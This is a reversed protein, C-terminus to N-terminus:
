WESVAHTGISIIDDFGLIKDCPVRPDACSIVIGGEGSARTKPAMDLIRPSPQHNRAFGRRVTLSKRSRFAGTHPWCLIGVQQAGADGACTQLEDQWTGPESITTSHSETSRTLNLDMAHLARNHQMYIAQRTSQGYVSSRFIFWAQDCRKAIHYKASM